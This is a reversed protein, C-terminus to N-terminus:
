IINQQQICSCFVQLTKSIYLALQEQTLYDLFQGRKYLQCPNYHRTVVDKEILRDQRPMLKYIISSDYSDHYIFQTNSSHTTRKFALGNKIAKSMMWHLSHCSLLNDYPGSEQGGVDGHMGPFWVQELVQQDSVAASSFHMMTPRFWERQEHISM